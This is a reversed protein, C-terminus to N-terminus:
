DHVIVPLFLIQDAADSNILSTGELFRYKRKCVDYWIQFNDRSSGNTLSTPQIVDSYMRDYTFVKAKAGLILPTWSKFACRKERNNAKEVLKFIPMSGSQFNTMKFGATGLESVGRSVQIFLVRKTATTLPSNM